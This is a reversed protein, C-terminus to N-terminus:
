PRDNITITCEKTEGAHLIVTRDLPSGGEECGDISSYRHAENSLGGVTRISFSLGGSNPQPLDMSWFEIETGEESGYISQSSPDGLLPVVGGISPNTTLQDPSPCCEKLSPFPGKLAIRVDSADRSVTDHVYRVKSILSARMEKDDLTITCIKTDGTRITGSCDRTKYEVYANRYYAPTPQDTVEYGTSPVPASITFTTGSESGPFAPKDM